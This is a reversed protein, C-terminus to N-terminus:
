NKKDYLFRRERYLEILYEDGEKELINIDTANNESNTECIEENITDSWKENWICSNYDHDM